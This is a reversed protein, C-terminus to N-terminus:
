YHPGYYRESNQFTNTIKRYTLKNIDLIYDATEGSVTATVTLQTENIWRIIRSVSLNAIEGGVTNSSENLILRGRGDRTDIWIRNTAEPSPQGKESDPIEDAEEYEPYEEGLYEIKSNDALDMLYYGSKTSSSYYGSVYYQLKDPKSQPVAMSSVSTNALLIKREESDVNVKLFTFSYSYSYKRESIYVDGYDAAYSVDFYVNSSFLTSLEGSAFEYMKLKYQDDREEDYQVRYIIREEDVAVISFYVDEGIADDVVDLLGQEVKAVALQDADHEDKDSSLLLAYTNATNPVATYRLYDKHETVVHQQVDTGDFNSSYFGITGDRDSIFYHRGTQVMPVSQSDENLDITFERTNYGEAEFSYVLQEDKAGVPVNLVATGEEDSVVSSEGDRSIVTFNLVSDGMLWDEALIKHPIGLAQLTYPGFVSDDKSVTIEHSASEYVDKSISVTTTGYDSDNFFARGAQDTQVSQGNALTVQAGVLPQETDADVVMISVDANSLLNLVGYRTNPMAYLAAPLVLLLLVAAILIRHWKNLRSLKQKLKAMRGPHNIVHAHSLQEPDTGSVDDQTVTNENVKTSSQKTADLIKKSKRTSKKAAATKKKSM